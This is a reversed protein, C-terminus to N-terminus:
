IKGHYLKLKAIRMLVASYHRDKEGFLSKALDLAANYREGAVCFKKGHVHIDGILVHTEFVGVNKETGLYDILKRQLEYAL